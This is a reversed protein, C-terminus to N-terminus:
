LKAVPALRLIVWKPEGDGFDIRAQARPGSGKLEVVRGLGWKDHTVRDGVDLSPIDAANRMVIPQGFSPAKSKVVRQPPASESWEILDGPIEALFRSAAYYEPQGFINRTGARTLHLHKRARTLGVYALRREEELDGPKNM